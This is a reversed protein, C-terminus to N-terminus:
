KLLAVADVEVPAGLPLEAVGIASRAPRGADGFVEVFLDTAGNGVAPQARFGPASAVFVNVKVIRAINDLSGAAARLQALVNIACVRAEEAAQEQTLDSGVSGTRPMSGDRIPVQGSVHVLGGAVIFPSYTAVPAPPEPLEIGLERLREEPSSV